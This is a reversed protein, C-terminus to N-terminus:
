GPASLVVSESEPFEISLAARRAPVVEPMGILLCPHDTVFSTEGNIDDEDVDMVEGVIRIVMESRTTMWSAM